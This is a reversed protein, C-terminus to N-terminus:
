FINQDSQERWASALFVRISEAFFEPACFTYCIEEFVVNSRKLNVTLCIKSLLFPTYCLLVIVLVLFTNIASNRLRAMNFSQTAVAMQDQIQVQHNRVVQYIKIWAFSISALSVTIMIKLVLCSTMADFIVIVLSVSSIMWVCLVVNRTKEETVLQKYRLHLYIALYRDVSM